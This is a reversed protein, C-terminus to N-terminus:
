VADKDDRTEDADVEGGKCKLLHQKLRFKANDQGSYDKGCKPCKVEEDLEEKPPTPGNVQVIVGPYRPLLHKAVDEDTPIHEGVPFDYSCGNYMLKLHQDFVNKLWKM